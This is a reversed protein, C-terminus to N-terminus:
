VQRAALLAAARRQQGLGFPKAKPKVYGVGMAGNGEGKGIRGPLFPRPRPPSASLPFRKLPRGDPLFEVGRVQMGQQQQTNKHSHPHKHGQSHHATASQPRPPLGGMGGGEEGEGGEAELLENLTGTGEKKADKTGEDIGGNMEGKARGEKGGKSGGKAGNKAGGKTADGAAVAKTNFDGLLEELGVWDIEEDDDDKDDRGSNANGQVIKKMSAIRRDVQIMQYRWLRYLFTSLDTLTIFGPHNPDVM